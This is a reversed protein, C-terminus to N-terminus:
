RASTATTDTALWLSALLSLLLTRLSTYAEARNRRMCPCKNRSITDRRPVRLSISTILCPGGGSLAISYLAQMRDINSASCSKVVPADDEVRHCTRRSVKRCHKLPRWQNCPMTSTHRKNLLSEKKDSRNLLLGQQVHQDPKPHTRRKCSKNLFRNEAIGASSLNNRCSRNLLPQM